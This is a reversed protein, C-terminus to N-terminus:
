RAKQGTKKYYEQAVKMAKEANKKKSYFRFHKVFLSDPNLEVYKKFCERALKLDGEFMAVRGANWYHAGAIKPNKNEGKECKKALELYYDAGKAALSSPDSSVTFSVADSLEKDDGFM